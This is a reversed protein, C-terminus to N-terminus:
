LTLSDSALEYTLTSISSVKSYPTELCLNNKAKSEEVLSGSPLYISVKNDCCSDSGTFPLNL